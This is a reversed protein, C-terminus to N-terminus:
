SKREFFVQKSNSLIDNIKPPNIGQVILVFVFDLTLGVKDKLSNIFQICIGM